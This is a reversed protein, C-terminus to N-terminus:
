KKHNLKRSIKKSQLLILMLLIASICAVIGILAVLSEGAFLNSFNLMTINYAILGLAIVILIYTFVKM